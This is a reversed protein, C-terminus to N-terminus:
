PTSSSSERFDLTVTHHNRLAGVALLASVRSAGSLAGVQAWTRRVRALGTCHGISIQTRGGASLARDLSLGEGFLLPSGSPWEMFPPGEGM